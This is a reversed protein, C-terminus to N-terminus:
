TNRKELWEITAKSQEEDIKRAEIANKDFVAQQPPTLVRRFDQREQERLVLMKKQIVHFDHSETNIKMRQEFYMDDIAVISDMQVPTLQINKLSLARSIAMRHIAEPSGTILGSAPDIHVQAHLGAASVVISGATVIAIRSIGQM